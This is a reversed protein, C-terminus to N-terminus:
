LDMVVALFGVLPWLLCSSLMKTDVSEAEMRCAMSGAGAAKELVSDLLDTRELVVVFMTQVDSFGPAIERRIGLILARRRALVRWCRTM